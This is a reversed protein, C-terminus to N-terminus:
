FDPLNDIYKNTADTYRSLLKARVGSFANNDLYCRVAGTKITTSQKTSKWFLIGRTSERADLSICNLVMNAQAYNDVWVPALDFKAQAGLKAGINFIQTAKPSQQVTEVAQKSVKALVDAAKPSMLRSAIDFAVQDMTLGVGRIAVEQIDKDQIIWGFSTLTKVYEKYWQFLQSEEPFHHSANRQAVMKCLNVDDITQKPVGPLFANITEPMVSATPKNTDHPPTYEGFDTFTRPMAIPPFPPLSEIFELRQELLM